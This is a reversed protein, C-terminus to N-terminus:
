FLDYIKGFSPNAFNLVLTRVILLPRLQELIETSGPCPMEWVILLPHQELIETSEPCPMEWLIAHAGEWM